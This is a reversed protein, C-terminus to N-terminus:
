PTASLWATKAATPSVISSVEALVVQMGGVIAAFGDRLTSVIQDGVFRGHDDAMRSIEVADGDFTRAARWHLEGICAGVYIVEGQEQDFVLAAEFGIQQLKTHVADLLGRDDRAFPPRLISLRLIFLHALAIMSLVM